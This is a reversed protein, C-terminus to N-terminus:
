LCRRPTAVREASSAEYPMYRLVVVSCKARISAGCWRAANRPMAVPMGYRASGPAPSTTTAHLRIKSTTAPTVTTTTTVPINQGTSFAHRFLVSASQCRPLAHRSAGRRRSRCCARLLLLRCRLLYFRCAAFYDTAADIDAADDIYVSFPPPPTFELAHYRPLVHGHCLPAPPSFPPLFILMACPLFISLACSAHRPQSAQVRVVCRGRHMSPRSPVYCCRPLSFFILANFAASPLVPPLFGSAERCRRCRAVARPSLTKRAAITFAAYTKRAARRAPERARVAQRLAM